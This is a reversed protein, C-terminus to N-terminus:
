TVAVCIQPKVTTRVEDNDDAVIEGRLRVIEDGPFLTSLNVRKLQATVEGTKYTGQSGLTM